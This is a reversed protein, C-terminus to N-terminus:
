NEKFSKKIGADINFRPSWNYDNKFNSNNIVLNNSLREFKPTQRLFIAFLKLLFIPFNFLIIKIEMAESVKYILEPTSIAENDSVLYMCNNIADNNICASIAGILNDIYIFSRKNNHGYISDFSNAYSEFFLEVNNQKVLININVLNQASTFVTTFLSFLM